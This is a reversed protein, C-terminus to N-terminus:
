LANVLTTWSDKDANNWSSTNNIGTHSANFPYASIDYSVAQIGSQISSNTATSGIVFEVNFPTAAAHCTTCDSSAILSTVTTTLDDLVDEAISDVLAEWNAQSSSHSAWIDGGVHATGAPKSKALQTHTAFDATFYNTLTAEVQTASTGNFIMDTANGTSSHCESSACDLNMEIDQAVVELNSKTTTSNGTNTEEEAFLDECSSFATAVSVAFVATMIKKNM